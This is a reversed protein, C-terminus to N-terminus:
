AAEEKAKEILAALQIRARNLGSRVSGDPMNLEYAIQKYTPVPNAARMMLLKCHIKTLANSHLHIETATFDTRIKARNGM